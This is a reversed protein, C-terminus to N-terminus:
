AERRGWADTSPIADPDVDELVGEDQAPMLGSAHHTPTAQHDATGEEEPWTLDLSDAAEPRLEADPDGSSTTM